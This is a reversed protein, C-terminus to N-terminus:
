GPGEIPRLALQMAFYITFLSIVLVAAALGADNDGLGVLFISLAVMWGRLIMSGATLGVITRPDDAAKARRAVALQVLRQALWALGGVLYGALPLGAALFVPLAIVLVVLDLWRLVAPVGAPRSPSSSASTGALGRSPPTPSTEPM